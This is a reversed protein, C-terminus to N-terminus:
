DLGELPSEMYCDRIEGKELDVFKLQYTADVDYVVRGCLIRDIEKHTLYVSHWIDKRSPFHDFKQLLYEKKPDKATIWCRVLIWFGSGKQDEADLSQSVLSLPNYAEVETGTKPKRIHDLGVDALTQPWNPNDPMAMLTKYERSEPDGLKELLANLLDENM